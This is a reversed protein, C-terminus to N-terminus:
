YSFPLTMEKAIRDRSSYTAMVTMKLVYDGKQVSGDLAWDLEQPGQELDQLSALTKVTAGGRNQIDATVLARETLFFPFRIKGPEPSAKLSVADAGNWFYQVSNKEAVLVQGFQHNIAIGRPQFFQFDDEGESGFSVVYRLDKDFKRLAGKEFDTAVLNGYYDFACGWLKAPGDPIQDLAAQALPRGELTLTQLRTGKRDIVALRNAYPGQQYFTWAEKADIVAIASPGELEPAELVRFRGKTDRVQIRNNGTDAVYLTGQSDYAVGMPAIFHGSGSGRKGSAGVWSLRMGDHKLLAIRDNGTDAVAVDGDQDIAAGTPASFQKDGRGTSGFRRLDKLGVNYILEGAGSNVGIVTIVVDNQPSHPDHDGKLLACAAGRPDSFAAGPVMLSLMTQTGRHINFPLFGDTPYVFTSPVGKLVQLGSAFAVGAALVLVVSLLKIYKIM